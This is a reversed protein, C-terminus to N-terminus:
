SGVPLLDRYLQVRRHVSLIHPDDLEQSPLRGLDDGICCPLSIADVQIPVPRAKQQPTLASKLRELSAGLSAHSHVFALVVRHTAEPLRLEAQEILEPYLELRQVDECENRVREWVNKMAPDVSHVSWRTMHAVYLGTRPYQGDGVSVFAVGEDRHDLGLLVRAQDFVGISETIEKVNPYFGSRLLRPASKQGIFFDLYKLSPKAVVISMSRNTETVEIEMQAFGGFGISACHRSTRM